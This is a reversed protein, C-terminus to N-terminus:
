GAHPSLSLPTPGPCSIAGCSGVPGRPEELGQIHWALSAPDSPLLGPWLALPRTLPCSPSSHASVRQGPCTRGGVFAQVPGLTWLFDLCGPRRSESDPRLWGEAQGPQLPGLPEMRTQTAWTLGLASASHPSPRMVTPLPKDKPLVLETSTHPAPQHGRTRVAGALAGHAGGEGGVPQPFRPM